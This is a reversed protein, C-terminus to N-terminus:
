YHKADPASVLLLVVVQGPWCVQLSGRAQGRTMQQLKDYLEASSDCGIGLLAHVATELLEEAQVLRCLGAVDECTWVAPWSDVAAADVARATSSTTGVKGDQCRSRVGSGFNSNRDRTAQPASPSTPSAAPQAAEAAAAGQEWAGGSSGAWSVTSSGTARVATAAAPTTPAPAGAAAAPTPAASSALTGEAGGPVQLPQLALGTRLRMRTRAMAAAADVAPKAAVQATM